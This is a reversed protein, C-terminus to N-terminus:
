KGHLYRKDDFTMVWEPRFLIMGTILMGSFFAEAFMM